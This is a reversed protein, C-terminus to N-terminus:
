AAVDDARAQIADHVYQALGEGHADYTAAFREDAVYMTALTRQMGADCAYFRNLLARHAAVAALVREDDLPVEAENLSAFAAFHEAWWQEARDREAPGWASTRQQSERWADTDGWRQEAEAQLAEHDQGDFMETVEQAVGREHAAIADQVAALLGDLRQRQARLRAAQMRLVAVRDHSPDDLVGAVEALSLGLARLALVEQLRELDAHAYLRYGVDSRASPVVLGLDDYHHLTRVSVGALEAVEGVTHM